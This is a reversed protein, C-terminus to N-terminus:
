LQEAEMPVLRPDGDITKMICYTSTSGQRTAFAWCSACHGQDKVSTVVNKERWEWSEPLEQISPPPHPSSRLALGRQWM